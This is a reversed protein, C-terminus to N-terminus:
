VSSCLYAQCLLIVYSNKTRVDQMNCWHILLSIIVACWQICLLLTLSRGRLSHKDPLKNTPSNPWHSLQEDPTQDTPFNNMPRKTLPFITWRANPKHSIQEDPTQNDLLKPRPSQLRSSQLRALTASGTVVFLYNIWYVQSRSVRGIAIITSTYKLLRSFSSLLRYM